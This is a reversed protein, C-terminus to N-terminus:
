AVLGPRGLKLRTVSGQDKSREFTRGFILFYDSLGFKEDIVLALENIRYNQGDQSYGQVTYHLQYGDHRQKELLLRAHLAPSQSDNTLKTVFPKYFPFDADERVAKGNVAAANLGHDQHGQGQSYVTVKSYRRSYDVVEEGALVNNGAGSELHALTYSANGKAVPRGFVFQPGAKTYEMWFMLGRSMAYSRLVEFVTMGQEIHSIKQATELFAILPQSVTQKKGRGKGVFNKQYEIPIRSLFPLAPHRSTKGIMMEALDKVKKGEVTVFDEAYSDVLLGMLDRGDVSLRTGRKSYGKAVRDIIGDLEITDNVYLQCRMGAKVDSEPNSLELSFADDANYLDAEVRYSEFNEIRKGAIQLYVKDDM